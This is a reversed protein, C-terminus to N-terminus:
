VVRKLLRRRIPNVVEKILYIVLIGDTLNAGNGRVLM